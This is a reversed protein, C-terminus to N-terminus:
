CRQNDYNMVKVIKMKLKQHKSNIGHGMMPSFRSSPDHYQSSVDFFLFSYQPLESNQYDFDEGCFDVFDLM